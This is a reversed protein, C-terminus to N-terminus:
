YALKNADQTATPHMEHAPSPDLEHFLLGAFSTSIIKFVFRLQMSITSMTTSTEGKREAPVDDDLLFQLLVFCFM